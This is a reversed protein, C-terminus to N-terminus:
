HLRQRLPVASVIRSELLERRSPRHLVDDADRRGHMGRDIALDLLHGNGTRYLVALASWCGHVLEFGHLFTGHRAGHLVVLANSRSHMSGGRALELLNGNGCRYLVGVTNSPGHLGFECLLYPRHWGRYLLSLANRHGHMSRCPELLNGIRDRFLMAMANRRRYMGRKYLLHLGRRARHLLAM